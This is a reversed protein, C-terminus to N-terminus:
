ISMRNLLKTMKRVIEDKDSGGREKVVESIDTLALKGSIMGVMKQTEGKALAEVAYYGLETALIRDAPSPTGGRQIHGLVVSRMEYQCGCNKLENIIHSVGEEQAETSALAQDGEAVVMIISRKGLSKFENLRDAIEQFNTPTEPVAVVESGAAIATYIALDGCHRGMVEVVFMMDHSGATDRLKDIAEVATQVATSFGITYDTGLLDNDITGPVGIIQGDWYKALEQAGALTGNGGICILANFRNAKLIQAAEKVGEDAYMKTCRSSNLFAGGKSSLGSVDRVDIARGEHWLGNAGDFLGQYGRKIGVVKYGDYKAAARIIARLCPNMGPADGGSCLVGIKM